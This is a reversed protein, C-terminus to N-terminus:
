CLILLLCLIPAAHTEHAISLWSETGLLFFSASCPDVQHAGVYCLWWIFHGSCMWHCLMVLPPSWNFFHGTRVGPPKLVLQRRQINIILWSSATFSTQQAASISGVDRAAIEAHTCMNDRTCLHIFAAYSAHDRLSPSKYGRERDSETMWEGPRTQRAYNESEIYVQGLTIIMKLKRGAFNSRRWWWAGRWFGFSVM